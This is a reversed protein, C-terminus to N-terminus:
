TENHKQVRRISQFPVSAKILTERFEEEADSAEIIAGGVGFTAIQDKIVVTRIVISLDTYGNFGIWGISGSYSGELLSKWNM